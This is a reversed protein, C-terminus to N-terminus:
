LKEDTEEWLRARRPSCNDDNHWLKRTARKKKKLLMSSLITLLFEKRYQRGKGKDNGPEKKREDDGPKVRPDM